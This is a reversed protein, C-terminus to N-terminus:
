LSSCQSEGINRCYSTRNSPVGSRPPPCWRLFCMTGVTEVESLFPLVTCGNRDLQVDDLPSHCGRSTGHSKHSMSIPVVVRHNGGNGIGLAWRRSIHSNGFSVLAFSLHLLGCFDSSSGCWLVDWTDVHYM